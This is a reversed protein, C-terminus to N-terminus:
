KWRISIGGLIELRDPSIEPLYNVSVGLGVARFFYVYLSAEGAYSVSFQKKIYNFGAGGAVSVLFVDNNWIIGAMVGFEQLLDPLDEGKGVKNVVRFSLLFPRRVQFIGISTVKVRTTINLYPSRRNDYFDNGSVLGSTVLLVLVTLTQRASLPLKM